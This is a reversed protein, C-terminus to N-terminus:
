IVPSSTVSYKVRTSMISRPANLSARFRNGNFLESQHPEPGVAGGRCASSPGALYGDPQVQGCRARRGCRPGSLRRTAASERIPSRQRAPFGTREREGDEDDDRQTVEVGMGRGIETVNAAQRNGNIAM